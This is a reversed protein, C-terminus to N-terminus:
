FCVSNIPGCNHCSTRDAFLDLQQKKIRNEMDGRACYLKENLYQANGQLNTVIYRPNASGNSWFLCFRGHINPATSIAPACIPWWFSTAAFSMCPCSATTTTIATSFRGIQKGHVPDDTADFDLILRKPPKKLSAIFQELVVQRIAIAAKRDARNELRCLTPASALTDEREVATAASAAM